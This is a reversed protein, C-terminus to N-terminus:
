VGSSEEYEEEQSGHNEILGIIWRFIPFKTQCGKQRWVLELLKLSGVRWEGLRDMGDVFARM